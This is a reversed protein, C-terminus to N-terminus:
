LIRTPSNNLQIKGGFVAHNKLLYFFMCNRTMKKCVQIYPLGYLLAMWALRDFRSVNQSPRDNKQRKNWYRNRYTLADFSDEEDDLSRIM